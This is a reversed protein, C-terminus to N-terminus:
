DGFLDLIKKVVFLLGFQILEIGLEGTFSTEVLEQISWSQICEAYAVINDSHAFIPHHLAKFDLLMREGFPEEDDSDM